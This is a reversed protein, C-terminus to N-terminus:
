TLSIPGITRQNLKIVMVFSNYNLRSVVCYAAELLCPFATFDVSFYNQPIVKPGQIYMLRLMAFGLLIVHLEAFDTQDTNATQM